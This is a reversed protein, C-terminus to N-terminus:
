LERVEGGLDGIVRSVKRLAAATEENGWSAIWLSVPETRESLCDYLADANRGYWDPLCLMARLAAHLAEPSDYQSGSLMLTQM